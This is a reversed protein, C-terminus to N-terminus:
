ETTQGSIEKAQTSVTKDQEVEEVAPHADLTGVQGEPFSVTLAKVLKHEHTIEGGKDKISKKVRGM